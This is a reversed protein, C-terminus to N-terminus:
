DISHTELYLEIPKFDERKHMEIRISGDPGVVLRLVQDNNAKNIALYMGARLPGVTHMAKAATQTMKWISLSNPSADELLYYPVVKYTVSMNNAKGTLSASGDPMDKVNVGTFTLTDNVKIEQNAYRPQPLGTKKNEYYLAFPSKAMIEDRSTRTVGSIGNETVGAYYLDNKDHMNIIIYSGQPLISGASLLTVWQFYTAGDAIVSEKTTDKGQYDYILRGTKIVNDLKFTTIFSGDPMKQIKSESIVKPPKNASHLNKIGQPMTSGLITGKMVGNVSKVALYESNYLRIGDATHAEVAMLPYHWVSGFGDLYGIYELTIGGGDTSKASVLDPYYNDLDSFNWLYTGQSQSQMPLYPDATISKPVDSYNTPKASVAVSNPVGASIQNMFNEYYDYFPWVARFYDRSHPVFQALTGGQFGDDQVLMYRCDNKNKSNVALYFGPPVSSGKSDVLNLANILGPANSRAAATDTGTFLFYIKYVASVGHVKCALVKFGSADKKVAPDTMGGLATNENYNKGATNFMVGVKHTMFYDWYPYMARLRMGNTPPVIVSQVGFNKKPWPTVIICETNTQVDVGVASGGVNSTPSEAVKIDHNTKNVTEQNTDIALYSQYLKYTKDRGDQKLHFGSSGDPLTISGFDTINPGRKYVPGHINPQPAPAAQANTAAQNNPSVPKYNPDCDVMECNAIADEIYLSYNLFEKKVQIAFIVRNANGAKVSKIKKIVGTAGAFKAGIGKPLTNTNGPNLGPTFDSFTVYQFDGNPGTGKTLKITDGVKYTKGNSAKYDDLKKGFIQASSIIPLCCFFLLIIRM